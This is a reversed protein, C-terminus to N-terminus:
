LSFGTGCTLHLSMPEMVQPVPKLRHHSYKGSDEVLDRILIGVAPMQRRVVGRM